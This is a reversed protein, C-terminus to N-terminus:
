KQQIIALDCGIRYEAELNTAISADNSPHYEQCSKFSPLQRFLMSTGANTLRLQNECKQPLMHYAQLRGDQLNYYCPEANNKLGPLYIMLTQDSEVTIPWQILVTTASDRKVTGHARWRQNFKWVRPMCGESTEIRLSGSTPGAGLGRAILSGPRLGYSSVRPKFGYICTYSVLGNTEVQGSSKFLFAPFDLNDAGNVRTPDINKIADIDDPIVQDSKPNSLIAKVDALFLDDSDTAKVALNLLFFLSVFMSLWDFLFQFQILLISHISDRLLTLTM